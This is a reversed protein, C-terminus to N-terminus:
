FQPCILGDMTLVDQSLFAMFIIFIRGSVCLHSNQVLYIANSPLKTKETDIHVDAICEDKFYVSFDYIM